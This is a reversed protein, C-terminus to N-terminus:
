EDKLELKYGVGRISNIAIKDSKETEIWKRIKVSYNDVTRNSPFADDGWVEKLIEDRSIAQNLKSHLLKLIACEKYGLEIRIKNADILYYEKFHIEISGLQVTESELSQIQQHISLAKKLRIMLERLDFPKTIYDEAGMDLGQFKTEPDSQASLFLLVFHPNINKLEKALEIGNGDPLNIDMLIISYEKQSFQYLCEQYSKALDCKFDQDELYDKLTEGLNIEDEVILINQM